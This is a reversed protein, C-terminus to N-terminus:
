PDRPTRKDIADAISRLKDTYKTLDPYVCRIPKRSCIGLLWLVDVDTKQAMSILVNVGPITRGSEWHTYAVRSYGLMKAMQNQTLNMGERFQRLRDCFGNDM